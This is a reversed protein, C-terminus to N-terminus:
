NVVDIDVRRDKSWGTEDTGTADLEGRSTANLRDTQVGLDHLYRRVSESRTGGLGMNYEQEGRNDARGVLSVKRDRLAGETLCKAVAALVDRDAPGIAASDFDFSATADTRPRECARAITDSVHLGPTAVSADVGVPYTRLATARDRELGLDRNTNVPAKVAYNAPPISATKDACGVITPLAALAVLALSHSLKM